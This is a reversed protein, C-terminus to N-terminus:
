LGGQEVLWDGYPSGDATPRSARLQRAFTEVDAIDERDQWMGFMPNEQQPPVAETANSEEDIQVTLRADSGLPLRARWAAPLESLEVHEFVVTMM